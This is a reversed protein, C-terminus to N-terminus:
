KDETTTPVPEDIKNVVQVDQTGEPTTRKTAALMGVLAILDMEGWRYIEEPLKIGVFPAVIGAGVIMWLVAILARIVIRAADDM